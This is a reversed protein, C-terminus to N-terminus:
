ATKELVMDTKRFFEQFEPKFVVNLQYGRAVEVRTIMRSIIMKKAEISAGDYMEAMSISADYQQELTLTFYTPPHVAMLFHYYLLADYSEMVAMIM